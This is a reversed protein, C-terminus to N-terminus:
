HNSNEKDLGRDFLPVDIFGITGYEGKRHTIKVGNHETKLCSPVVGKKQWYRYLLRPNLNDMWRENFWDKSDYISDNFKSM